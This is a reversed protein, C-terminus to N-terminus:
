VVFEVLPIKGPPVVGFVIGANLDLTSCRILIQVVTLKVGAKCDNEAEFRGSDGEDTPNSSTM